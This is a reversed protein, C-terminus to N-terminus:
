SQTGEASQVALQNCFQRISLREPETLSVFELGHQAEQQYRVVGWIQLEAPHNPLTFNLLVVSGPSLCESITAALGGVAIFHCRGERDRELQDRVRLPLDVHYRPFRRKETAETKPLSLPEVLGEGGCTPCTTGDMEGAGRCSPCLTRGFPGWPM